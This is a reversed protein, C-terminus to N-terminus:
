RFSWAILSNTSLSLNPCTLLSYAEVGGNVGGGGKVEDRRIGAASEPTVPRVSRETGENREIERETGAGM